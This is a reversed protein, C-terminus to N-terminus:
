FVRTIGNIGDFGDDYSYVENIKKERMLYVINADTYSLSKYKKLIQYTNEFTSSDNNIIQIQNSNMFM